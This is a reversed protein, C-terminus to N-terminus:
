VMWSGENVIWPGRKTGASSTSINVGIGATSRLPFGVTDGLQNYATGSLPGGQGIGNNDYVIKAQSASWGLGIQNFPDQGEAYHIQATSDSSDRVASMTCVIKNGSFATSSITKSTGTLTLGTLGVGSTGGDGTYLSTGGSGQSINISLTSSGIHWVASSIGPGISPYSRRGQTYLWANAARLGVRGYGTQTPSETPNNYLHVVGNCDFSSGLYFCGPQQSQQWQANRVVDTDTDNYGPGVAEIQVIGFLLNSLAQPLAKFGSVISSLATAYGASSTQSGGCNSEGQWWFVFGFNGFSPDQIEPVLTNVWVDGTTPVFHSIATGGAATTMFGLPTTSSANQSVYDARITNVYNAIGGGGIGDPSVPLPTGWLYPSNPNPAWMSAYQDIPPNSTGSGGGWWSFYGINSQGYM